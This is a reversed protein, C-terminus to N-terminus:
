WPSRPDPLEGGGDISFGYDDGHGLPADVRWWGHTNQPGASGPGRSERHIAILKDGLHLEVREAHPAWVSVETM